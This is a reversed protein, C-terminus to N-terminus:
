SVPRLQAVERHQSQPKKAVHQDNVVTAIMPLLAYNAKVGLGHRRLKM